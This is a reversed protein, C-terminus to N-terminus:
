GKNINPEGGHASTAPLPGSWALRGVARDWEGVPRSGYAPNDSTMTWGEESERLRKVVLGDPTHLVFVQGDVPETWNRDILIMDGDQLTPEMSDGAAQICSLGRPQAWGPLISRPIEVKVEESEDFVMEGSGAAARVDSIVPVLLNDDDTSASAKGDEDSDESKVLAPSTFNGIRRAIVPWLDEPIPDRGTELLLRNLKQASEELEIILQQPAENILRFVEFLDIAIREPPFTELDGKLLWASDVSFARAYRELVDLKIGRHGNEHSCYSSVTWGFHSAAAAASTYGAKIRADRLRDHIKM